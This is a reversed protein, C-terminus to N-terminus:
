VHNTKVKKARATLSMVLVSKQGNMEAISKALVRVESGKANVIEIVISREPKGRYYGTTPQVTFSDFRQGTLRLISKRNLNETYIRYVMEMNLERRLRAFCRTERV